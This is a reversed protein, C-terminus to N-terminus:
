LEKLSLLEDWSRALDIGKGASYNGQYGNKLLIKRLNPLAIKSLHREDDDILTDLSFEQCVQEKTKKNGHEDEIRCFKKIYRSVNNIEAWEEAFAMLRPNRYTVVYVGGKKSIEKLANIAGSIEPTRLTSDREYVTKGMLNYNDLGILPVCSTRDTDWPNIDLILNEKIWQVKMANTDAITGDFDIGYKKM